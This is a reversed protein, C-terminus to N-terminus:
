EISIEKALGMANFRIVLRSSTSDGTGCDRSPQLFYYFFKQNRKYLENQDPRGLVDVIQMENLALLKDKEKSISVMMQARKGSCANKDLDWSKKDFGELEPTQKGCSFVVIFLLYFSLTRFRNM